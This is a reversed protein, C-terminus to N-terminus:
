KTVFCWLEQYKAKKQKLLHSHLKEPNKQSYFGGKQSLHIAGIYISSLKTKKATM